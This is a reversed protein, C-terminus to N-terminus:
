TANKWDSQFISSLTAMDSKDGVLIGVERNYKLSTTTFNQSGLFDVKVGVILKAHMYLESMTKVQVGYSLLEALVRPKAGDVPIIIEASHGKSEIAKLIGRDDGLEEEEINVPGAQLIVSVLQKESSPSVVLEPLFSRLVQEGAFDADFVKTLSTVLAQDSSTYIYERNKQFASYDWNATGILVADETIAYKAHDFDRHKNDDEFQQPAIHVTAGVHELALRENSVKGTMNMPNGAIIVSVKVGRQVDTAIAAIIESDDIYYNNILLRVNAHEIFEVVPLAGATPEVYIM